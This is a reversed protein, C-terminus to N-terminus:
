FLESLRKVIKQITANEIVEKGIMVYPPNSGSSKCVGLCTCGEIEILNKMHEPIHEHLLYLDSGGMVYCTTGACIKVVTKSM